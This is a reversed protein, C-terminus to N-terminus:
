NDVIQYKRYDVHDLYQDPDQMYRQLFANKGNMTRRNLVVDRIKSTVLSSASNRAKMFPAQTAAENLGSQYTLWLCM